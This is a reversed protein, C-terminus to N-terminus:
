VLWSERSIKEPRVALTEAIVQRVVVWLDENPDLKYFEESAYDLIFPAEEGRGRALLAAARIEEVVQLVEGATMDFKKRGAARGVLASRIRFGLRRELRLNMDLFDIGM